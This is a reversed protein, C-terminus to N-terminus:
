FHSSLCFTNESLLLILMMRMMVITRRMRMMRMIMEKMNGDEQDNELAHIRLAPRGGRGGLANGCGGRGQWEM